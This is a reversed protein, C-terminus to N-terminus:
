FKIEFERKIKKKKNEFEKSALTEYKMGAYTKIMDMTNQFMERIRFKISEKVYKDEETDGKINWYNMQNALEYLMEVSLIEIVNSFNLELSRNYDNKLRTYEIDFQNLMENRQANLATQIAGQIQQPTMKGYADMINFEKANKNIKRGIGSM